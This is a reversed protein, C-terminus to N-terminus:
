GPSCSMDWLTSSPSCLPHRDDSGSVTGPTAGAPGPCIRDSLFAQCTHDCCRKEPDRSSAQPVRLGPEEPGCDQGSQVRPRPAAAGGGDGPLKDVGLNRLSGGAMGRPAQTDTGGCRGRRASPVPDRKGSPPGAPTSLACALKLAQRVLLLIRFLGTDGTSGKLNLSETSPGRSTPTGPEQSDVHRTELRQWTGPMPFNRKESSTRQTAGTQAKKSTAQGTGETGNRPTHSNSQRLTALALRADKMSELPANDPAIRKAKEGPNPASGSGGGSPRIEPAGNRTKVQQQPGSGRGPRNFGAADDRRLLEKQQRRRSSRSRVHRRRPDGGAAADGERRFVGLGRRRLVRALTSVLRSLGSTRKGGPVVPVKVIGSATPRYATAILRLGAGESMSYVCRKQTDCVGRVGRSRDKTTNGPCTKLSGGVITKGPGAGCRGRAPETQQPEAATGM